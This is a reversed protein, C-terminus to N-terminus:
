YLLPSSKTGQRQYYAIKKNATVKSYLLVSWIAVRSRCNAPIGCMLLEENNEKPLELSHTLPVNQISPLM